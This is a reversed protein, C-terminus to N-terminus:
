ARALARIVFAAAQARTPAEGTATLWGVPDFAAWRWGTRTKTLKFGFVAPDQRGAESYSM